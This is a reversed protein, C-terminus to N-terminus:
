PNAQRYDNILDMAAGLTNGNQCDQRFQELAGPTQWLYVGMNRFGIGVAECETELTKLWPGCGQPLRDCLGIIAEVPMSELVKQPM